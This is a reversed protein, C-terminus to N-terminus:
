NTLRYLVEVETNVPQSHLNESLVIRGLQEVTERANEDLVKYGSTRKVRVHQLRGDSQIQLSLAVLGEWGMRRALRPYTFRAAIMTKLRQQLHNIATQRREGTVAHAASTAFHQKVPHTALQVAAQHPRSAPKHAVNSSQREVRRAQENVPPSQLIKRGAHRTTTTQSKIPTQRVNTARQLPQSAATTTTITVQLPSSLQLMEVAHRDPEPLVLLLGHLCLSIALFRLPLGPLGAMSTTDRQLITM